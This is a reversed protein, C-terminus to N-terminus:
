SQYTLFEPHDKPMEKYEQTFLMSLQQRTFAKGARAWTAKKTEDM